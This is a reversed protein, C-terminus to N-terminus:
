SLPALDDVGYLEVGTKVRFRVRNFRVRNGNPSRISFKRFVKINKGNDTMYDKSWRHVIGTPLRDGVYQENDMEMYSRIGLAEWQGHDWSNDETFSNRYYDYVFCRGLTPALFKLQNEKVFDLAYMDSLLGRRNLGILGPISVSRDIGARFADSLLKPVGGSLVYFNGDSSYWYITGNAEIMSDAAGVGKRIELGDIRIFPISGGAFSWVETAKHRGFYLKDRLAVMGRIDDDTQDIQTSGGDAWNEPDGVSSNHFVNSTAGSLLLYDGMKAIFRAPPPSGGLVKVINNQIKVPFGGACIIIRDDYRVWNPKSGRTITLPPGKLRTVNAGLRYIKGTSTVAYGTGEPILLAIAENVGTSWKSAYGPRKVHNGADSLTVNRLDMQNPAVSDFDDLDKTSGRSGPPTLLVQVTRGQIGM